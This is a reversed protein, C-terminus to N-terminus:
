LRVWFSIDRPFYEEVDSKKEKENRIGPIVAYIISM